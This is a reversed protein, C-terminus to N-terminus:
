QDKTWMHNSYLLWVAVGGFRNSFSCEVCFIPPILHTFMFSKIDSLSIIVTRVVLNCSRQLPYCICVITECPLVILKGAMTYFGYPHEEYGFMERLEEGYFKYVLM